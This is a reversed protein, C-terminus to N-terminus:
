ELSAFVEQVFSNIRNEVWDKLWEYATDEEGLEFTSGIKVDLRANAYQQTPQTIGMGVEVYVAPPKEAAKAM